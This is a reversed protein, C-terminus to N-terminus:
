LHGTVFLDGFDHLASQMRGLHSQSAFGLGTHRLRRHIGGKSACRAGLSAQLGGESTLCAHGTQTLANVTREIWIHSV